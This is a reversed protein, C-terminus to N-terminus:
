PHSVKSNRFVKQLSMTCDFRKVVRHPVVKKACGRRNLDTIGFLFSLSNPILLQNEVGLEREEVGGVSKNFYEM